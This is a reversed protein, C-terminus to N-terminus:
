GASLCTPRGSTHSKRSRSPDDGAPLGKQRYLSRIFNVLKVPDRGAALEYLEKKLGGEHGITFRRYPDTRESPELISSQQRMRTIVFHAEGYSSNAIGKSQKEINDLEDLLAPSLRGFHPQGAAAQDIRFRFARVLFRASMGSADDAPLTDLAASASDALEVSLQVEGLRALGYAFMLDVYEATPNGSAPTPVTGTRSGTEAWGRVLEHLDNVQRLL